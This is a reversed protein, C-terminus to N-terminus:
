LLRVQDQTTAIIVLHRQPIDPVWLMGAQGHVVPGRYLSHQRKRSPAEDGTNSTLNKKPPSPTNSTNKKVVM